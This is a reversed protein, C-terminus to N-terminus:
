IHLQRARQLRRDPHLHFRREIGPGPRRPQRGDRPDGDASKSDADTDNALVGPAAVVKATSQPTSYADALAVPPNNAISGAVRAYGTGTITGKAATAISDGVVTGSAEDLGWRAVLNTGSTLESNMTGQIQAQTRGVSWVRAEDLVGQFRGATPSFPGTSMLMAGLAVGQTSDSRPHLGPTASAELNGDLYVAWTTGNFSAAAHHWVNLTIATTGSIPVNQGTTPDAPDDIAEFDAAIVNGTTNIGLVWNADVNSGEAQAAGHTLLPVFNAIGGTGTTSAVGTGTRKFWTEITFQALDLKAPDGFTVYAGASGLDLAM